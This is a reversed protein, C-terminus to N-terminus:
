EHFLVESLEQLNEEKAQQLLTDFSMDVIIKGDDTEAILGGSLTETTVKVGKEKILSKDKIDVIVRKVKIEKKAQKLLKQLLAKKQSTKQKQLEKKAEDVVLDIIEKKKDLLSKKGEFEGAALEKREATQIMKEANLRSNEEHKKLDKNTEALTKEAEEKSKKLMGEVKKNAEEMIQNKLEEIGM